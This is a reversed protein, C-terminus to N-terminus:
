EEAFASTEVGGDDTISIKEIKAKAEGLKKECHKKLRVGREYSAISEELPARGSELNQVIGELEAIAQEFTMDDISLETSMYWMGNFIARRHTYSLEPM